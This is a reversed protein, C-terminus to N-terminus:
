ISVGALRLERVIDNAIKRADGNEVKINIEQKEILTEIQSERAVVKQAQEGAIGYRQSYLKNYEQLQADSMAALAKVQDVAQPGMARVQELLNKNIDRQELVGISQQWESMASVQARMRNLLREGSISQRQFIDFIGTFDAFAKTQQRIARVMEMVRDTFKKASSSSDDIGSSLGKFLNQLDTVYKTIDSNEETEVKGGPVATVGQIIKKARDGASTANRLILKLSDEMSEVTAGVIAERLSQLAGKFDGDIIKSAAATIRSFLKVMDMFRQAILEVIYLLGTQLYNGFQQLEKKNDQILQKVESWTQNAQKRFEEDANYAVVYAGVIAVLGAAVMGIPSTMMPLIKLVASIGTSLQGIMWIAPGLAAVFGTVAIITNQVGEPLNNFKEVLGRAFDVVKKGIDLLKNFTPLLAHGLEIATEEIQSKLIRMKNAPSDLTRALDGQAATTREMIVAFRAAVEQAESMEEGQQIIGNTLAWTKVAADNVVIGLEQLPRPMGVIASQIKDFASETSLNYFSAIDYALQTLSKSMDYAAQEGLGMSKLMVNFTGVNKRIEYENIGMADSVQDSWRRAAEAMRDMSVTFLQESEVVESAMKIAATAIGVIPATIAATMAKGAATMKQGFEQMQRSAKKINKEFDSVNARVAVNISRIRNSM